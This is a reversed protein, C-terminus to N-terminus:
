RDQAFDLSVTNYFTMSELDRSAFLHEKGHTFDIDYIVKSTQHNKMTIESLQVRITGRIHGHLLGGVFAKDSTFEALESYSYCKQNNHSVVIKNKEAKLEIISPAEEIPFSMLLRRAGEKDASFLGLREVMEGEETFKYFAFIRPRNSEDHISFLYGPRSDVAIKYKLSFFIEGSQLGGSRCCVLKTVGDLQLYFKRDISDRYLEFRPNEEFRQILFNRYEKVERITFNKHQSNTSDYLSHHRLCLFALNDFSNDNPNRNLHAIQGEVVGELNDIYYCLPCRRRTSRLVRTEVEPPIKPRSM